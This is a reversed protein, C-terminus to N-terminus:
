PWAEGLYADLWDDAAERGAPLSATLAHAAFGWLFEPITGPNTVMQWGFGDTFTVTGDEARGVQPLAAVTVLAQSAANEVLADDEGYQLLLPRALGGDLPRRYRDAYNAGDSGDAAHQLLAIGVSVDTGAGADPLIGRIRSWLWMPLHTFIHMVGIGCVHLIAGKLHPVAGLAAAGLVGGYSTGQYTVNGVALDAIGDAVGDASGVVDIRDFEEAVAARLSAVDVVGQLLMSTFQTQEAPTDIMLVHNGDQVVRTGRYSWDIALTAIGHAANQGSMEVMRTKNGAYGHGFIAVPAPIHAASAPVMLQFTTWYPRGPGEPVFTGDGTQFNTLMVHGYVTKAGEPGGAARVADIRVRHPAQDAASVAHMLGRRSDDEDRVTFETVSVLSEPTIGQQALVEISEALHAAVAPARGDLASELGPSPEYPRGDARRLTDTVAAVYHHGHEFRAAPWARVVTSPSPGAAADADVEAHVTVRSSNATDYVVLASGGDPALTAPDVAADMEFMVPTSASFGTAGDLIASPRAAPAVAALYAPTVIDDGAHVRLGTPSTPDRETFFDSPFPLGCASLGAPNCGFVRPQVPTEARAPGATGVVAACVGAGAVLAVALRAVLPKDTVM